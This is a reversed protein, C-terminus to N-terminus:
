QTVGKDIHEQLANLAKLDVTKYMLTSGEEEIREQEIAIEDLTLAERADL